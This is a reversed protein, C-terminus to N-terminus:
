TPLETLASLYGMVLNVSQATTPTGNLILVREDPRPPELIALQSDVLSPPMYHDSRHRLRARVVEVPLNPFVFLIPHGTRLRLFDRYIYKLASCSIIVGSSEDASGLVDAVRELWPWRDDDTLATGASMKAINEPPHLDDGEIFRYGTAEALANGLTSKGCGSIGMIVIAKASLTM